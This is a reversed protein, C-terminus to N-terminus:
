VRSPSYTKSVGAKERERQNEKGLRRMQLLGMFRLHSAWM